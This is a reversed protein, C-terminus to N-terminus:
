CFVTNEICYERIGNEMNPPGPSSTTTRTMKATIPTTNTYKITYSAYKIINFFTHTHIKYHKTFQNSNISNIYKM